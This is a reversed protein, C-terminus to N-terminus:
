RFLHKQGPPCLVKEQMSQLDLLKIGEAFIFLYKYGAAKAYIAAENINYKKVNDKVRSVGYAYGNRPKPIKQMVVTSQKKCIVPAALDGDEDPYFGNIVPVGLMAQVVLGSGNPYASLVPSSSDIYGAISKKDALQRIIKRAEKLASAVKEAGAKAVPSRQAAVAPYVCYVAAMIGALTVGTLWLGKVITQLKGPLGTLLKEPLDVACCLMVAFIYPLMYFYCSSGDAIDVLMPPIWFACCLGLLANGWFQEGSFIKRFSWKREKLFLVVPLITVIFAGWNPWYRLFAFPVINTMSRSGGSSMVMLKCIIVFIAGSILLAVVGKAWKSWSIKGSFFYCGLVGLVFLGATIKGISCAIFFLPFLVLTYLVKFWSKEFWKKQLSYLTFCGLGLLIDMGLAMSVSLYMSPACLGIYYAARMVFFAGFVMFGVTFVDYFNLTERGNFCWRLLMLLKFSLYIYPVVVILPFIYHLTYLAPLDFVKAFAALVFHIGTHYKLFEPELYLSSPYGYNVIAEIITSHYLMDRTETGLVYGAAGNYNCTSLAQYYAFVQMYYIMSGAIFISFLLTWFCERCFLKGSSKRLALWAAAGYLLVIWVAVAATKRGWHLDPSTLQPLFNILFILATFFAFFAPYPFVGTGPTKQEFAATLYEFCRHIIKGM